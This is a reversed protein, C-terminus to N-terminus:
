VLEDLAKAPIGASADPLVAVKSGNGHHRRLEEVVEDWEKIWTTTEPPGMIGELSRLKYPSHIILRAGRYLPSPGGSWLSGGTTKGHAGYLWHNIDGDPDNAIIVISGDEKV